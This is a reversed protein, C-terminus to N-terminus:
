PELGASRYRNPSHQKIVVALSPATSYSGLPLGRSLQRIRPEAM